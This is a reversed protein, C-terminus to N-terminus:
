CATVSVRHVKGEKAVKRRPTFAKVLGNYKKEIEDALLLVDKRVGCFTVNM